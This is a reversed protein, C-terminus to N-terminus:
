PQQVYYDLRHVISLDAQTKHKCTIYTLRSVHLKLYCQALVHMCVCMYVFLVFASTCPITYVQFKGKYKGQNSMKYSCALLTTITIKHQILCTLSPCLMYACVRVQCHVCKNFILDKYSQMIVRNLSVKLSAM